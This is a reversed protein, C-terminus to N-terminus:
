KSAGAQFRANEIVAESAPDDLRVGVPELLDLALEPGTGSSPRASRLPSSTGVATARALPAALDVPAGTVFVQPAGPEPADAFIHVLISSAFVGLARAGCEARKPHRAPRWRTRRRAAARM